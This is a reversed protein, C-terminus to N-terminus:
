HIFYNTFFGREKRDSLKLESTSYAKQSDGCLNFQDGGCFNYFLSIDNISPLCVRVCNFNLHLVFLVTKSQLVTTNSYVVTNNNNNNNIIVFLYTRKKNHAKKTLPQYENLIKNTHGTLIYWLTQLGYQCQRWFWV